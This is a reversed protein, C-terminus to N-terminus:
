TRTIRVGKSAVSDAYIRCVSKSLCQSLALDKPMIKFDDYLEAAYIKLKSGQKYEPIM